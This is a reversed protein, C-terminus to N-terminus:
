LFNEFWLIFGLSFSYFVDKKRIEDCFFLLLFPFVFSKPLFVLVLFACLCPSTTFLSACVQSHEVFLTVKGWM